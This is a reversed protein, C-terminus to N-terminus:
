GTFLIQPGPAFMPFSVKMRGGLITDLYEVECKWLFWGGDTVFCNDDNCKSTSWDFYSGYILREGDLERTLLLTELPADMGLNVNTLNFIPVIDFGRVVLEDHLDISDGLLLLAMDREHEDDEQLDKVKNIIADCTEGISMDRCSIKAGCRHVANRMGDDGYVIYDILQRMLHFAVMFVDRERWDIIMFGDLRFVPIKDVEENGFAHRSPGQKSFEVMEADDTSCLWGVWDLFPSHVSLWALTNEYSELFNGLSYKNIM